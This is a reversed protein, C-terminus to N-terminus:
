CALLKDLAACINEPRIIVFFSDCIALKIIRYLSSRFPTRSSFVYDSCVTPTNQLRRAHLHNDPLCSLAGGCELTMM